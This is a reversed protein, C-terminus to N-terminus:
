RMIKQIIYRIINPPLPRFLIYVINQILREYSHAWKRAQNFNRQFSEFDSELAYILSCYFLLRSCKNEAIISKEEMNSVLAHVKLIAKERAKAYQSKSSKIIQSNTHIRYFSLLKDMFVGIGGFAKVRAAFEWDNSNTLDESFNGVNNLIDARILLSSIHWNHDPIDAISNSIPKGIQAVKKGCSNIQFTKGWSYSINSNDRLFGIQSHIKFPLILDDSDLFQFYKGTARKIGYNRAASVGQKLQFFYKIDFNNNCRNKAYEKILKDTGDTSGDDIVIIEIPRYSQNFVSDLTECIIKRRNFTPIIFSVLDKM